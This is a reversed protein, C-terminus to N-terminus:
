QNESAEPSYRGQPFIPSYTKWKLTFYEISLDMPHMLDENFCLMYFLYMIVIWGPMYIYPRTYDTFKNQKIKIEIFPLDWSIKSRLLGIIHATHPLAKCVVGKKM